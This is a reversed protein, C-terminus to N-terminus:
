VSCKIDKAEGDGDGDVVEFTVAIDTIPGAPKKELLSASPDYGFYYQLEVTKEDGIVTSDKGDKFAEPTGSNNVVVSTTKIIDGPNLSTAKLGSWDKESEASKLIIWDFSEKPTDFHAKVTYVGYHDVEVTGDFTWGGVCLELEFPELGTAFDHPEYIWGGCISCYAGHMHAGMNMYNHEHDEAFVNLSFLSFIMALAIAVSLIKKTM